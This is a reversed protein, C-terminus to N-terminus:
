EFWENVRSVSAENGSFEVSDERENSFSQGMQFFEVKKTTMEIFSVCIDENSDRGNQIKREKFSKYQDMLDSLYIKGESKGTANLRVGKILQTLRTSGKAHEEDIYGLDDPDFQKFLLEVLQKEKNTLSM